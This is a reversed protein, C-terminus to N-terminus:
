RPIVKREMVLLIRGLTNNFLSHSHSYYVPERPPATRSHYTSGYCFLVEWLALTAESGIPTGSVHHKDQHLDLLLAPPLVFSQLDGRDVQCFHEIGYAPFSKPFEPFALAGM